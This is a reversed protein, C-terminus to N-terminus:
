NHNEIEATILVDSVLLMRIYVKVIVVRPWRLQALLKFLHCHHWLTAFGM